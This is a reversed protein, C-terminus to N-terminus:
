TYFIVMRENVAAFHDRLFVAPNSPKHLCLEVIAEQFIIFKVKAYQLHKCIKLPNSSYATM